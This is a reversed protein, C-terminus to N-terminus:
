SNIVTRCLALITSKCKVNNLLTSPWDFKVTRPDRFQHRYSIRKEPFLICIHVIGGTHFLLSYKQLRIQTNSEVFLSVEANSSSRSSPNWAISIHSPLLRLRTEKNRLCTVFNIMTQLQQWYTFCAHLVSVLGCAWPCYRPPHTCALTLLSLYCELDIIFPLRNEYSPRPIKM